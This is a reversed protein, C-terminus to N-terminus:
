RPGHFFTIEKIKTAVILTVTITGDWWFSLHQDKTKRRIMMPNEEKKNIHSKGDRM